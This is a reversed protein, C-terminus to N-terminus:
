DINGESCDSDEIDVAQRADCFSLTLRVGSEEAQHILTVLASRVASAITCPRM